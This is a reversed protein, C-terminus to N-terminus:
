LSSVCVVVLLSFLMTLLTQFSSSFFSLPAASIRSPQAPFVVSPYESSRPTSTTHRSTSTTHGTSSTPKTTPQQTIPTAPTSPKDTFSPYHSCNIFQSLISRVTSDVSNLSLSLSLSLSLTFLSIFRVIM